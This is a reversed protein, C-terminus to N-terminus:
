SRHLRSGGDGRATKDAARDGIDLAIQDEIRQIMAEAVARM